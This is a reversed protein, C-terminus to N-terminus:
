LGQKGSSPPRWRFYGYNKPRLLALAPVLPLRLLDHWDGARRFVGAHRLLAQYAGAPRGTEYHRRVLKSAIRAMAKHRPAPGTPGDPYAGKRNQDLIHEFGRIANAPDGTLHDGLGRSLAMMAPATVLLCPGAAAARLILDNDEAYRIATTFGGLAEFVDRRMALNCSGFALGTRAAEAELSGPFARVAAATEEMAPIVGGPAEVDRFLVVAPEPDQAALTAALVDLTWAFWADDSDHFVLWRGKAQRAATNRAAGPGANPQTVVQGSLGAEAMAQRAAQASGDTSGDDAVIVEFPVNARGRIRHLAQGVLGARNYLPMLVSIFPAEPASM